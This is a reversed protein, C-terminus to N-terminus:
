SRTQAPAEARIKELTDRDFVRNKVVEGVEGLPPVTAGNLTLRIGAANGITRFRFADAAEFTRREGTLMEANVVTKGDAELVV